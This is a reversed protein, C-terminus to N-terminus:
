KILTASQEALQPLDQQASKAMSEISATHLIGRLRFYLSRLEM